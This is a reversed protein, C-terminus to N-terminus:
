PSLRDPCGNPPLHSMMCTHKHTHEAKIAKMQGLVCAEVLCYCRLKGEMRGGNGRWEGPHLKLLDERM